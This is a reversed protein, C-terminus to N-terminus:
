NKAATAPRKRPYAHRITYGLITGILVVPVILVPWWIWNSPDKAAEGTPMLQGTVLFQLGTGAYVLGDTLGVAKGTNKVGSFDGAATGSLIGHIGIVSAAVVFLATGMLMSGDTATNSGISFCMVIASVFMAAYLMFAVPGRRSGFWKDSVWGTANAGIIGCLLMTLGWNASVFFHKSFGIEKAFLPYWHLSANRIFGSCLEILCVIRLVRLKPDVAVRRIMEWISLSESAIHEDGTDFDAFGADSPKNRLTLLMPIWFLLAFLPPFFYLWWNQDVGTGGTGLLWRFISATMTLEGKITGRTASVIAYGWDFSFYIGFSIMVGFITSFKGRERVHFWPMKTTVISVAGYSQFSMNIAYLIMFSWYVPISWDFNTNGYLVLGMLLNTIIAGALGHLMGWRGGKRDVRPANVLFSLAYAWSGVAAIQGFQAKTMVADGFGSTAPTLIYRMFILSAYGFGLPFWNLFRRRRYAPTLYSLEQTM